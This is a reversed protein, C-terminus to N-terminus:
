IYSFLLFNAWFVGWFDYLLYKPHVCILHTIQRDDLMFFFVYVFHERSRGPIKPPVKNIHKEGDPIVGLFCMFM